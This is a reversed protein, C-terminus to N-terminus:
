IVVLGAYGVVREFDGSIEGSTQYKLLKASQAGLVKVASLMAIAPGVGCMSIDNKRVTEYLGDEDLRLIKEIAKKDKQGASQHSEYHTMDSSAIILIKQGYSKLAEGLNQGFLKLDDLCNSAIVIVAMQFHPKLYQLFPLQVEASHEELHSQIDEDVMRASKKIADGLEKDIVVEGLPTMWKGDPWLSFLEGRGTHNPALIVVREPINISSFVEGAVWGSYMYGAHPSIVGLADYKKEVKHTLKKLDNKLVSQRGPYFSGAVAPERDM